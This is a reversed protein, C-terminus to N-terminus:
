CFGGRMMRRLRGGFGVCLGLELADVRTINLKKADLAECIDDTSSELLAAALVLTGESTERMVECSVTLTEDPYPSMAQLIPTAYGVLDGASESPVRIMRVILRSLPLALVAERSDSEVSLERLAGGEYAVVRVSPLM